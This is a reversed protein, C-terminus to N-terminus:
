SKGLLKMILAIANPLFQLLWIWEVFKKPDGGQARILDEVEERTRLPKKKGVPGAAGVVLGGSDPHSQKLGLLFNHAVDKIADFAMKDLNGPSTVAVEICDLITGVGNEVLPIDIKTKDFLDGHLLGSLSVGSSMGRIISDLGASIKARDLKTADFGIKILNGLLDGLLSERLASVVMENAM